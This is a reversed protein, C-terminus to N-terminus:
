CSQMQMLSRNQQGHKNIFAGVRWLPIHRACQLAGLLMSAQQQGPKVTIQAKASYTRASYGSAIEGSVHQMTNCTPVDICYLCGLFHSIYDLVPRCLDPAALIHLVDLTYATDRLAQHADRENFVLQASCSQEIQM